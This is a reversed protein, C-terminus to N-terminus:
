AAEALALRSRLWSWPERRREERGFTDARCRRKLAEIDWGHFRAFNAGMIGAKMEETLKPYRPPLEYEWFARLFSQPHCGTAGSSFFLREHAGVAILPGIVDALADAHNLVMSPAAELNVTVNPYRDLLRATQEVYAMGGHVIEFTLDPYAEVVPRVDDVHYNDIGIPGFPMAKHIAVVKLGKARATDYLPAMLTEDDLRLRRLEGDVLDAPYLKLGIIGHDDILSVLEQRADPASPTLGGYIFMRHPFRERIQEAVWIPSSGDGFFGYMPVGHYVGVDIDSERFLVEEMVQPQHDFLNQFQSYSIKYRPDDHPGLLDFIMHYLSKVVDHVWPQKLNDAKFNFAHVVADVVLVDNDIM